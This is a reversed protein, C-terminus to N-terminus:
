RKTNLFSLLLTNEKKWKYIKTSSQSLCLIGKSYTVGGFKNSIQSPTLVSTTLPEVPMSDMLLGTQHLDIVLQENM